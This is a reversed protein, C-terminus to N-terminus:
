LCHTTSNKGQQAREFTRERMPQMPAKVHKYCGAVLGASVCGRQM